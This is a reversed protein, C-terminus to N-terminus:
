RITPEKRYGISWIFDVAAKVFENGEKWIIEGFSIITKATYEEEIIQTEIECLIEWFKSFETRIEDRVTTIPYCRKCAFDPVYNRRRQNHKQERHLIRHQMWQDYIDAM